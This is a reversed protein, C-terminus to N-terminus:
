CQGPNSLESKIIITQMKIGNGRAAHLHEYCWSGTPHDAREEYPKKPPIFRKNTIKIKLLGLSIEKKIIRLM